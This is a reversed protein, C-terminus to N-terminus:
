YGLRAHAARDQDLDELTYQLPVGHEKLFAHVRLRTNYGLLRRVQEENLEGAQYWALALSELVHRPTDGWKEQVHRAIDDPLDIVIEMTTVGRERLCVDRHFLTCSNIARTLAAVSKNSELTKHSWYPTQRSYMNMNHEVHVRIGFMPRLARQQQNQRKRGLAKPTLTAM